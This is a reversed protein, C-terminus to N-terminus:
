EDIQDPSTVQIQAVPPYSEILGTVYITKDLYYSEPAQPFNGRNEGWIIVVFRNSSPYDEGINLWTPQGNIDPRYSAGVVPGYVPNSETAWEGIHNKAESWSIGTPVPEFNATLSRDSNMTITITPTTGSASGSWYDFTYGSNPSATLTVQDGSEYEGGSPSVTGAGQPSVDTSLTYTTTSDERCAALEAQTGTLEAKTSTLEAESSMLEAVTDSLDAETSNWMWFGVGTSAALLVAVVSVVILWTKM